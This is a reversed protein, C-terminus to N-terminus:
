PLLDLLWRPGPLERRVVAEEIFAEGVLAMPGVLGPAGVARPPARRSGSGCPVASRRSRGSTSGRPSGRCRPRTRTTGIRPTGGSATLSPWRRRERPRALRKAFDELAARGAASGPRPESLWFRTALPKFLAVPQVTRDVELSKEAQDWDIPKRPEQSTDLISTKSRYVQFCVDM